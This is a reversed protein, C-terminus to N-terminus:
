PHAFFLLDCGKIVLVGDNDRTYGGIDFVLDLRANLKKGGTLVVVKQPVVGSIDLPNTRAPDPFGVIWSDADQRLSAKTLVSINGFGCAKGSLHVGSISKQDQSVTFGGGGPITWRGAHPKGTAGLALAPIALAPIALSVAILLATVRTRRMPDRM